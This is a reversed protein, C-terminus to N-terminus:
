IRCGFKHDTLMENSLDAKVAERTVNVQKEAINLTPTIPLSQLFEKLIVKISIQLAVQFRLRNRLAIIAWDFHTYFIMM